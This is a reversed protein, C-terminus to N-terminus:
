LTDSIIQFTVNFRVMITVKFKVYKTKQIYFQIVNFKCWLFGQRSAARTVNDHDIKRELILPFYMVYHQRVNLTLCIGVMKLKSVYMDHSSGSDMCSPM